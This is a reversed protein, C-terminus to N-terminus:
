KTKNRAAVSISRCIMCRRSNTGKEPKSNTDNREHGRKCHTRRLRARTMNELHTVAEMHDPNVCPRQNCLHDLEMGEPIPGNKEQWYIVHASNHGHGGNYAGYGNSYKSWVWVWCPTKYGCDMIEYPFPTTRHQHQYIYRYPVGKVSGDRPDSKPALRTQGNCGCHCTGYPIMCTPNKCICFSLIPKPITM